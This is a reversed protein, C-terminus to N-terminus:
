FDIRKLRYNFFPGKNATKSGDGGTNRIRGNDGMVIKKAQVILCGGSPGSPGGNTNVFRGIDTGLNAGLSDFCDTYYIALMGGSSNAPAGSGSGIIAPNGSGGTCYVGHDSLVKSFGMAEILSAGGPTYSSTRIGDNEGHTSSMSLTGNITLTDKVRLIMYDGYRMVFTCGEGIYLNQYDFSGTLHPYYKGDGSGNPNYITYNAALYDTESGPQCIAVNGLVGDGYISTATLASLKQLRKSLKMIRSFLLEIM